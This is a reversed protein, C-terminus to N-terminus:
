ERRLAFHRRLHWLPIGLLRGMTLYTRAIRAGLPTTTLENGERAIIGAEVCEDFRKQLVDGHTYLRFLEAEAIRHSPALYVLSVIHSSVSRDVSVPGILGYIGAFGAFTLAGAVPALIGAGPCTLGGGFLWRGAIAGALASLAISVNLATIIRSGGFARITIAHLPLFVLGALIVVGFYLLTDSL